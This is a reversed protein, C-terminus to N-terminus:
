QTNIRDADEQLIRNMKIIVLLRFALTYINLNSTQFSKVLRKKISLPLIGSISRKILQIPTISKSNAHKKLMNILDNLFTEPFIKKAAKSELEQLIEAIMKEKKFLAEKPKTASANAFEIKNELSRLIEKLIKKENCLEDPYNRIEEVISNILLPDFQEVYPFKLDSLAAQIIPIRYDALIRDRYHHLNEEKRRKLNKPIYQALSNLYNHKKLNEFDSILSLGMFRRVDLESTPKLGSFLQNGRLIGEYKNEFLYKWIDFGNMYSSIHDIRGEGNKLFRTLLLDIPEKSIKTSFFSHNTNYNFALKEAINADSGKVDQSNKTGWTITRLQEEKSKFKNLLLLIIRSDHGGSLSLIWKKFNINQNDFVKYIKESLEQNNLSKKKDYMIPSHKLKWSSIEVILSTAPPIRKIRKDWSYLPGLSGTSIIWPIVREDFNFSALFKIIARQSTACIFIRDDKYYWVTRTSLTDTVVEILKNNSRFIAYNGDPYLELPNTWKKEKNLISGLLVNTGKTQIVSLPNSLGCITPGSQCCYSPNASINDPNLESSIQEVREKANDPIEKNRYTVYLIKSM